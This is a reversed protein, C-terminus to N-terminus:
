GYRDIAFAALRQVCRRRTPYEEDAQTSIARLYLLDAAAHALLKDGMQAQVM